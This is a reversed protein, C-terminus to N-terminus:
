FPFDVLIVMTIDIMKMFWVFKVAYFCCDCDNGFTHCICVNTKGIVNPKLSVGVIGTHEVQCVM